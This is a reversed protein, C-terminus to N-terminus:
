TSTMVFLLTQILIALLMKFAKRSIIIVTSSLFTIKAQAPRALPLTYLCFMALWQFKREEAYVSCQWLWTNTSLICLLVHDLKRLLRTSHTCFEFKMVVVPDHSSKSPRLYPGNSKVLYIDLLKHGSYNILKLKICM